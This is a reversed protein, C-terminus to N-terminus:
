LIHCEFTNFNSEFWKWHFIASHSPFCVQHCIINDQALLTRNRLLHTKFFRICRKIRSKNIANIDYQLKRNVWKTGSTFFQFGVMPVCLLAFNKSFEYQITFIIGNSFLSLFEVDSRDICFPPSNKVIKLSNLPEYNAVYSKWRCLNLFYPWLSFNLM